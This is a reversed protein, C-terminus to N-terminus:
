KDKGGHARSAKAARAAAFLDEITVQGPNMATQPSSALANAVMKRITRGDLGVGYHASVQAGPNQFRSDASAITGVMTHIVVYSPDSAGAFQMSHGARGALYNSTPVPGVFQVAM